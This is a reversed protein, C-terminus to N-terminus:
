TEDIVRVPPNEIRRANHQGLQLRTLAENCAYTPTQM